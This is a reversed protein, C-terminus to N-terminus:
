LRASMCAFHPSLMKSKDLNDFIERAKEIAKSELAESAISIVVYGQSKDSTTCVSIENISNWSSVYVYMTHDEIADDNVKVRAFALSVILIAVLLLIVLKKM